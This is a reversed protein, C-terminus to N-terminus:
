VGFMQIIKEFSAAPMATNHALYVAFPTKTAAFPILRKTAAGIVQPDTTGLYTPFFVNWHATLQEPTLHFLHDARKADLSHAMLWILCLDWEPVGYAFEGVDIWLDREGDTIINGIHLDGHLCTTADPVQELFALAKQKFNEPVMDKERYFREVQQKYSKLRTTDAQKDHLQKAMRAFKVSMEELREPEESIIRTFSRKNHILEYEAGNCKGDTVLRYPEPTPIGLEFVTRATLFEKKANDATFGPLYLKALSRGNKHTYALATGGEGTQVYDELNITQVNNTM